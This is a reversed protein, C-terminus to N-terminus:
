LEGLEEILKHNKNAFTVAAYTTEMHEIQLFDEAVVGFDVGRGLIAAYNVASATDFRKPIDTEEAANVVTKGGFGGTLATSLTMTAAVAFAVIRKGLRKKSM